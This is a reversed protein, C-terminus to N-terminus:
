LLIEVISDFDKSCLATLIKNYEEPKVSNYIPKLKDVLRSYEPSGQEIVLKNMDM